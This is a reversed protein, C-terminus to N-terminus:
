PNIIPCTFEGFFDTSNMIFYIIMFPAYVLAFITSLLVAAAAKEPETKLVTAVIVMNVALPVISLLILAQHIDNSYIGLWHADIYTFLLILFPWALFKAAFSMGLFKFDLNFHRLSALSLGIIMMGLVAYTGKIHSMFEMFIVPMPIHLYNITLAALVAYIIPLRVLKQICELPSYTGKACIYFGISNEFITIGLLAMMYVGEGQNNFLYLAIPLGFYGTNGSGAGFAMLNNSSDTWMNKGLQYFLLCLMSSLTLVFFPLSLISMDVRTHLVGNFMILPSIIYFMLRAIAERPTGLLKGAVFGLLMNFYLPSIKLLLAFFLPM